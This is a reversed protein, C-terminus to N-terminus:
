VTYCDGMLLARVCLEQTLEREELINTFKASARDSLLNLESSRLTSLMYFIGTSVERSRM